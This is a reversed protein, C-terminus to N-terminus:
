ESGRKHLSLSLPAYEAHVRTGDGLVCDVVPNSASLTAGGASVISGIVQRRQDDSEFQIDSTHMVGAKEYRIAEEDLYIATVGADALLPELPGANIPLHTMITKGKM